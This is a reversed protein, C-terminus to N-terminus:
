PDFNELIKKREFRRIVGTFWSFNWPFRDAPKKGFDPVCVCLHLSTAVKYIYIVVDVLETQHASMLAVTLM